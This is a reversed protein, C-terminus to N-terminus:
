PHPEGNRMRFLVAACRQEMTSLRETLHAGREEQRVLRGNLEHLERWVGALLWAVYAVLGALLSLVTLAITLWARVEGAIMM